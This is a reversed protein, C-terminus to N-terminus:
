DEVSGHSVSRVRTHGAAVRMQFIVSGFYLQISHCGDLVSRFVELIRYLYQSKKVGCKGEVCEVRQRIELYGEWIGIKKEECVAWFSRNEEGVRLVISQKM